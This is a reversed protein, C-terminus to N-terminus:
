PLADYAAVGAPTARVRVEAAARGVPEEWHRADALAGELDGAALDRLPGGGSRAHLTVWGRALLDRIVEGALRRSEPPERGLAQFRWAVEFLGTEEEVILELAEEIAEERTM